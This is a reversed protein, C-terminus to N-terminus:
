GARSGTERGPPTPRRPNARAGRPSVRTRRGRLRTARGALATVTLVARKWPLTRRDRSALAHGSPALPAQGLRDTDGSGPIKLTGARAILINVLSTAVGDQRRGLFTRLPATPSRGVLAEAPIGRAGSDRPILSAVRFRSLVRDLHARSPCRPPRHSPPQGLEEHHARLSGRGRPQVLAQQRVHDERLTDLLGHEEVAVEPFAQRPVRRVETMPPRILGDSLDRRGIKMGGLGALVDGPGNRM